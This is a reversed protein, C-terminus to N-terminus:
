CLSEQAKKLLVVANTAEREDLNAFGIRFAQPAHTVEICHSIGPTVSLGMRRAARSWREADLGQGIRAWLALGGAPLTFSLENPFKEALLKAMRDRRVQYIRRTKRTHRGLDGGHLLSAVAQELVVDGQRDIAQRLDAMRRILETPGTAYGLRLGPALVKSLSGVYILGKEHGMRAALPLVPRGDFRYEHDYDDEIITFEHQRALESLGIRRVAGLTVTTPYQHHPTVYVARIDPTESIIRALDDVSIGDADVPVPIVRAGAARFASVALPYGPEEVAIAEGPGILAAAALFLAMQSGRTVILDDLDVELGREASLHLCLAERLARVGRPDGYGAGNLLDPRHLANRLARALETAPLLRADPAGDSFELLPPGNEAESAKRAGTAPLPKSRRRAPVPDLPLDHAVFTGRAPQATLWGQMTAEHYAADVTNRHLNLTRALARTGPLRQGPKLRGTEIATIIERSLQLFVPQGTGEQIEFAIERM